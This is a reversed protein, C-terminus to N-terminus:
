INNCDELFAILQKIKNQPLNGVPIAEMDRDM